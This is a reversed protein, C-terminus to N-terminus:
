IELSINTAIIMADHILQEIRIRGPQLAAFQFGKGAAHGLKRRQGAPQANEGRQSNRRSSHSQATRASILWM